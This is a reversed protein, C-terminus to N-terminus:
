EDAQGKAICIRTELKELVQPAEVYRGHLRASARSALGRDVFEAQLRRHAIEGRISQEVFGSLSEGEELVQEASRRLEPAVRVPLFTASKM